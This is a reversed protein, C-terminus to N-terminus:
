DLREIVAAFYAAHEERCMEGQMTFNDAVRYDDTVHLVVRCTSSDQMKDLQGNVMIGAERQYSIEVDYPFGVETGARVSVSTLQLWAVLNPNSQSRPAITKSITVERSLANRIRDADFAEGALALTSPGNSRRSQETETQSSALSGEKEEQGSQSSQESLFAISGIIAVLVMCGVVVRPISATSPERSPSPTSETRSHSDVKTLEINRFGRVELMARAEAYNKASVRSHVQGGNARNATFNFDM